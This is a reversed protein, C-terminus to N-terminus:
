AEMEHAAPDVRSGPVRSVGCLASASPWALAQKSRSARELARFADPFAGIDPRPFAAARDTFGGIHAARGDVFSWGIFSTVHHFGTRRIRESNLV